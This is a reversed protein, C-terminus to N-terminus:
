GRLWDKRTQWGDTSFEADLTVRFRDALERYPQENHSGHWVTGPTEAYRDVTLGPWEAFREGFHRCVLDWVYLETPNGLRQQDFERFHPIWAGVDFAMCETRVFLNVPSPLKGGGSDMCRQMLTATGSREWMEVAEALWGPQTWLFRQSLKVLWRFGRTHGWQLGKWYVSLDGAYHGRRVDSPWFTVDPETDAIAEFEADRGSGDDALLIPVQGCTARIMRVQLRALGPLGYCGVVIGVGAPSAHPIPPQLIAVMRAAYATEQEIVRQMFSLFEPSKTCDDDVVSRCM